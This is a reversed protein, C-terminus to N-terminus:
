GSVVRGKARQFATREAARIKEYIQESETNGNSMEALLCQRGAVAVVNCPDGSSLVTAQENAPLAGGYFRGLANTYARWTEEGYRDLGARDIQAIRDTQDNM